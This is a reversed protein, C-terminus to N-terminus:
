RATNSSSIEQNSHKSCSPMGCTVVTIKINVAVDCHMLNPTVTVTVEM